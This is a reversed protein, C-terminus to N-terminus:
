RRKSKWAADLEGFVRRDGGADPHVRKSLQRYLRRASISDLGGLMADFLQRTTTATDSLEFDALLERTLQLLEAGDKAAQAAAAERAAQQQAERAQKLEARLRRWDKAPVRLLPDAAKYLDSALYHRGGGGEGGPRLLV